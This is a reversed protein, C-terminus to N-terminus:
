LKHMNLKNPDTLM